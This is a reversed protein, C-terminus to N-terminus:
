TFAVDKLLTGFVPKHVRALFIKFIKSCKSFKNLGIVYIFVNRM